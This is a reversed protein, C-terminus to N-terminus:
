LTCLVGLVTKPLNQNDAAYICFRSIKTWRVKELQIYSFSNGDFIDKELKQQRNEPELALLAFEYVCLETKCTPAYIFFITESFTTRLSPISQIKVAAVQNRFISEFSM